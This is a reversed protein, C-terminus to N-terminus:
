RAINHNNDISFYIFNFSFILFKPDIIVKDGTTYFAHKLTIVNPHYLEKM